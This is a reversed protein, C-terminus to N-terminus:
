NALRENLKAELFLEYFTRSNSRAENQQTKALEVKVLLFVWGFSNNLFFIERLYIIIIRAYLHGSNIKLMLYFILM